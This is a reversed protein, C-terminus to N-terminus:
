SNGVLIVTSRPPIEVCSYQPELGRLVPASANQGGMLTATYADRGGRVKDWQENLDSMRRNGPWRQRIPQQGADIDLPVVNVLSSPAGRLKRGCGVEVFGTAGRLVAVYVTQMGPLAGRFDTNLIGNGTRLVPALGAGLLAVALEELSEIDNPGFWRSVSDIPRGHLLWAFPDGDQVPPLGDITGFTAMNPDVFADLVAMERTLRNPQHTTM